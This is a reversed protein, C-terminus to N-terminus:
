TWRAWRSTWSCCRRNPQGAGQRDASIAERMSSPTPVRTDWDGRKYYMAVKRLQAVLRVDQQRADTDQAASTQATLRLTLECINEIDSLHGEDERRQRSASGLDFVKVAIGPAIARRRYSEHPFRTLAANGGHLDNHHVGKDAMREVFELLDDAIQAIEHPTAPSELEGALSEGLVLEMVAYHIRVTVGGFDADQNERWTNLVAVQPIDRVDRHLYCEELFDRRDGYGGKSPNLADPPEYVAAPTAKVVFSIGTASDEVLYAVSYFGRGLTQRVVYNDIREPPSISPFDFANGCEPCLDTPSYGKVRPHLFCIYEM